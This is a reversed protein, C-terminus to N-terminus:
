QNEGKLNSIKQKTFIITEYSNFSFFVFDLIFGTFNPNIYVRFISEQDHDLKRRIASFRVYRIQSLAEFICLQHNIVLQVQSWLKTLILQIFHRFHINICMRINKPYATFAFRMLYIFSRYIFVSNFDYSYM